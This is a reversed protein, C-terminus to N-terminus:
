WRKFEKKLVIEYTVGQDTVQPNVFNYLWSHKSRENEAAAQIRAYVPKKKRKAVM